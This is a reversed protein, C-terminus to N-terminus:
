WILPVLRYRVKETYSSYGDLETKLMTDELSTRIVLTVILIAASSDSLSSGSRTTFQEEVPIMAQWSLSVIM